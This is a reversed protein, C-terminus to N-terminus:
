LPHQSNSKTMVNTEHLLEAMISFLESDFLGLDIGINWKTM